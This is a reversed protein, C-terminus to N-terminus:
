KHEQLFNETEARTPIGTRCGLKTCKLASVASAFRMCGQWNCGRVYQCAFAGHFVDGAGTTDVVDVALAAQRYLQKGDFGICGKDGLTVVAFKTNKTFLKKVAVVPDTDGTFRESFKESAIVLDALAVLEDIRPVMSGADLSVTTGADRAIKAAHIAADTHHGDLHLLAADRIVAVNVEEPLLPKISGHSWAISRKGTNEQIWCFAVPSEAGLRLKVNSSDVGEKALAKLIAQGRFDDGVASIFSTKAGLRAVACIATAAPGGGQELTERAQVKDDVPIHPIICLYDM